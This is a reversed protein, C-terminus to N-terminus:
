LTKGSGTPVLLGPPGAQERADADMAFPEVRDVELADANHQTIQENIEERLKEPDEFYRDLFLEEAAAGPVPTIELRDETQGHHMRQRQDGAYAGPHTRNMVPWDIRQFRVKATPLANVIAEFFRHNGTQEDIGEPVTRHFSFATAFILLDKV